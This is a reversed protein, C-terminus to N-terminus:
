DNSHNPCLQLFIGASRWFCFRRISQAFPTKSNFLIHRQFCFCFAAEPKFRRKSCPFFQRRGVRASAICGSGNALSRKVASNPIPDPRVVAKHGGIFNTLSPELNFTKLNDPRRLKAPKPEKGETSGNSKFSCSAPSPKLKYSSLRRSEVRPKPGRRGTRRFSYIPINPCKKACNTLQFQKIRTEAWDM